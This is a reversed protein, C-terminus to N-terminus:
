PEEFIGYVDERIKKLVAKKDVSPNAEAIGDVATEIARSAKAAMEAQLKARRESSVKMAGITAQYARALEMASKTDRAADEVIIEQILSKILEGLVINSDDVNDATFQPALGEFLARSESLRRQAAALKIARRNFASSSIGDLGKAELRDNLEFLIDAQTRQRAALQQVAWTIDDAADEPLLDISSLRGRGVM